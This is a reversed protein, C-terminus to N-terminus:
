STDWNLSTITYEAETVHVLASTTTLASTSERSMSCFYFTVCVIGILMTLTLICRAFKRAFAILGVLYGGGLVGGEKKCHMNFNYQNDMFIGAGDDDMVRTASYGDPCQCQKILKHM